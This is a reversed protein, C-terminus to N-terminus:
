AHKKGNAPVRFHPRGPRSPSDRRVGPVDAAPVSRVFPLLVPGIPEACTEWRTNQDAHLCRFHFDNRLKQLRGNRPNRFHAFRLIRRAEERDTREIGEVVQEIIDPDDPALELARRLATIGEEDDDGAALALLGFAVLYQPEEPELQLARRYHVLARASDDKGDGEVATGLLYHFRANGPEHALAAALHRRARTYRRGQLHFEGLCVQAERALEAPLGALGSLRRWCEAAERELGLEQYRRGQAALREVLNLTRSM